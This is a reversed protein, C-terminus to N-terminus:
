TSQQKNLNQNTKQFLDVLQTTLSFLLIQTFKFSPSFILIDKFNYFSKLLFLFFFM